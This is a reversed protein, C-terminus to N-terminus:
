KSSMGHNARSSAAFGTFGHYNLCTISIKLNFADRDNGRNSWNIVYVVVLFTEDPRASSNCEEKPQSKLRVTTVICHSDNDNVAPRYGVAHSSKSEQRPRLTLSSDQHCM